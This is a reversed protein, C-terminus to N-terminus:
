LAGKIASQIANIIRDRWRFLAPRLFPRPLMRHTGHELELGAAGASMTLNIQVPDAEVEISNALRGLDDAPVEGPASAQVVRQPRYRTVIRGSRSGSRISQQIDREIPGALGRLAQVVAVRIKPHLGKVKGQLRGMNRVRVTIPAM